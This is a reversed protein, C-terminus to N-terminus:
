PRRDYDGIFTNAKAPHQAPHLLRNCRLDRAHLILLSADAHGAFANTLVFLHRPKLKEPSAADSQTQSV